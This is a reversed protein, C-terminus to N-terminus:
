MALGKQIAFSLRSIVLNGATPLMCTGAVVRKVRQLFRVAEPAFGGFTDFALPVFVHQNETCARDHKVVKGAEAKRAADGVIFGQDRLGVLPSVGTLDVCAHKGQVWSFILIDAPRLSSRGDKPDTLFNVPAEKKASIGARKLIDFLVDRVFDHRYKFGPMDKCHVAHEGFSDLCMKHCIPCPAGETFLPIMLRYKLITRYEVASMHQGLGDIPAVSLFDQAHPARLCELVAKQRATLGFKVEMGKVIGSFLASALIKQPKPPVTDKNYFGDIDLDSLQTQLKGLAEGYDSDFVCGGCDRLIHDQLGWSQARSAVFAFVSADEATGVGLGGFRVPLSAVRWQLDEFFAGGCVVIDEVAERLGADFM